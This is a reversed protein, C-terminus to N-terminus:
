HNRSRDGHCVAVLLASTPDQHLTRLTLAGWLAPESWRKVVMTRAAGDSLAQLGEEPLSRGSDGAQHLAFTAEPLVSPAAANVM